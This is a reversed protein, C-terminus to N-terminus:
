ASIVANLVEAEELTVEDVPEPVEIELFCLQPLTGSYLRVAQLAAQELMADSYRVGASDGLLNLVRTKLTDWDSM